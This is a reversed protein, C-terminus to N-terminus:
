KLINYIFYKFNKDASAMEDWYNRIEKRLVYSKSIKKINEIAATFINLDFEIPLVVSGRHYIIETTGGADTAIVPLGFSTAEMITVPVGESSSVSVFADIHNRLYFELIEANQCHGHLIAKINEPFGEVISKIKPMESGSGFHHWTIDISQQALYKALLDIRKVPILNGCSVLIIRKSYPKFFGLGLDRTGLRSVVIKDKFQPYKKLLYSKGYDSVPCICDASELVDKRLPLYGESLEEYIDGGHLRVIVKAAKEKLTPALSAAGVGWYFYLTSGAVDFQGNGWYSKIVVALLYNYFRVRSSYVRYQFFEKRLDPYRFLDRIAVYLKLLRSKPLIPLNVDVNEPIVRRTGKHGLTMPQIMISQFHRAIIPLESDLFDEGTGYPYASTFLVLHPKL